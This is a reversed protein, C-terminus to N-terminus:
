LGEEKEIWCCHITAHALGVVVVGKFHLPLGIPLLVPGEAGRVIGGLGLKIAEVHEGVGRPRTEVDAMEFAVGRRINHGPVLTHPAEIHQM